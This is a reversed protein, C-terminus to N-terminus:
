RIAKAMIHWGYRRVLPRPILNFAAVFLTNYLKAGMGSHLRTKVPFREPIIEVRSFGGLMKRFQGISFTKFVPADNHELGAGTLKSLASLWSYRNYVMFIAEGGPKLVRRMEDIMCQSGDTYQLVGHGYVVDFEADAFELSEGDMVRLDGSVGNHEFNKRALEISTEALDVGTVIAGGKAFRVLDTGVGCGVELLKKGQYASFDVVKPLYDLKEFRYDHLDEFFGKTGVPHKAIELDHIHENWYARVAGKIDNSAISQNERTGDM